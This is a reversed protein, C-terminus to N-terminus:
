RYDFSQLSDFASVYRAGHSWRYELLPHDDTHREKVEASWAALRQQREPALADRLSGEVFASAPGRGFREILQAVAPTLREERWAGGDPLTDAAAFANWADAYGTPLLLVEKFVGRLGGALLPADPGWLLQSFIGGPRLREHALRWFELTYLGSSGPVYPDLVNVAIVDFRRASTALTHRGDGCLRRVRPDAYYRFNFAEFMEQERFVFPLIEVTTISKVNPFRTFAGATIGYGTGINLVDACERAMLCSFYAAMEQTYSTSPHGLHYAIFSRDNKVKLYGRPNRTVVQLGYEDENIAIVTEGPAHTVLDRPALLVAFLLGALGLAAARLRAPRSSLVETWSAALVVCTSTVLFSRTTGLAHPLLHGGLAAGLAAGLSNVATLRGAGRAPMQNVDRATHLVLPFVVGLLTVPIAAAAFTLLVRPAIASLADSSRVLVERVLRLALLNAVAGAAMVRAALVAVDPGHLARARATLAPVFASGLALCALYIFLLTSAALTRDGLYLKALRSWLLEYVFSVLGSGFAIAALGTGVAAASEGNSPRIIAAEGGGRALRFAGVCVLVELAAVLIASGTVGLQWVLVFGSALAGVAGGLLNCGYLLPARRAPEDGELTGLLVPLTAGMLVTPPGVLAATLLLAAGLPTVREALWGSALALQSTGRLLSITVFLGALGVAAELAGFLRLAAPGRGGLRGAYAAGLALGLIFIAFVATLALATAGVVNAVLRTWLVELVLACFGSVFVLPCLAVARSAGLSM